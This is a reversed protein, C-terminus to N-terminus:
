HRDLKILIFELMVWLYFAIKSNKDVTSTTLDFQYYYKILRKDKNASEDWKIHKSQQKNKRSFEETVTYTSIVIVYLFQPFCNLGLCTYVAVWTWLPSVARSIDTDESHVAYHMLSGAASDQRWWSGFAAWMLGTSGKNQDGSMSKIIGCHVESSQHHEM